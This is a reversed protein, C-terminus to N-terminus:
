YIPKIQRSLHTSYYVSVSKSFASAFKSWTDINDRIGPKPAEIQIASILGGNRSGHVLTNYGGSFYRSGEPGYHDNSPVCAFGLNSLISGFSHEGRLIEIFDFKSSDVLSRISSSNAYNETNLEDNSLDLSSGSLLYGLWTRLDYYGDPNVGHGHMDFYLGTGFDKEIKQKAESIYYHFENFARLAFRNNQAAEVSDRNADLKTRKLRCLIVHPRGGYKVLMTDMIVKTLQYTNADTVTTGYTRDPIETPILDGGHPAALIIPINGAYYEIYDNRGYYVSDAYYPGDHGLVPFVEQEVTDKPAPTKELEQDSNEDECSFLAIISFLFIYLFFNHKLRM